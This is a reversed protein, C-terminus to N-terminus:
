TRGVSVRKVVAKVRIVREPAPIPPLEDLAAELPGSPQVASETSQPGARVAQSDLNARVGEVLRDLGAIRARVSAADLQGVGSSPAPPMVMGNTVQRQTGDADSVSSVLGPVAAGTASPGSADSSPARTLTDRRPNISDESPM